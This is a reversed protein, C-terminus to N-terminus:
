IAMARAIGLLREVPASDGEVDVHLQDRSLRRAAFRCYDVADLVALADEGGAPGPRGLRWTGGGAGTLVLRIPPDDPGSALALSQESMRRIQEPAPDVTPRGLARRVDDAHTWVEFARIVLVTESPLLAGHFLVVDDGGRLGGVLASTARWDALTSEPPRRTEAEVTPHTMALHDHDIARDPASAGLGHVSLTYRDVGLLHGVLGQVTWGYPEVQARWDDAPLRDLLDGLDGTRSRYLESGTPIPGLGVPRGPPRAARARALIRDGLDGPPATDASM